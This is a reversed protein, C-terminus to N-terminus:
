TTPIVSQAPRDGSTCQAAYLSGHIMTETHFWGRIHELVPRQLVGDEHSSAPETHDMDRM